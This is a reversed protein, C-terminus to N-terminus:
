ATVLRAAFVGLALAAFGLFFSFLFNAAARRFQGDQVLAFTEFEFTSYTTYAGTFGMAILLRLTDSLHLSKFLTMFLGMVFCGTVNIVLTGYPLSSDTKSAIWRSLYFRTNAGVVGGAGVVMINYFTTTVEKIAKCDLTLLM